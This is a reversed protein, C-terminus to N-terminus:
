VYRHRMLKKTLLFMLTIQMNKGRPLVGHFGYDNHPSLLPHGLVGAPAM